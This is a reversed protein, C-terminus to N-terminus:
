ESDAEERGEAIGEEKSTKLCIECPQSEIFVDYFSDMTATYELETGCGACNLEYIISM